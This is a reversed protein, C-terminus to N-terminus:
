KPTEQLGASSTVPQPHKRPSVQTFIRTIEADDV